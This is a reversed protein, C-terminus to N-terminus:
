AVIEGTTTDVYQTLVQKASVLRKKRWIEKEQLLSKNASASLSLIFKSLQTIMMQEITEMDEGLLNLSHNGLKLSIGVKPEYQIASGDPVYLTAQVTIGNWALKISKLFKKPIFKKKVYKATYVKENEM